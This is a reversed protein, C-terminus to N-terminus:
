NIPKVSEAVVSGGLREKVARVLPDENLASRASELREDTARAQQLAPTEVSAEVVDIQLRVARGLHRSLAQVLKEEIQRTRLQQSRADLRLRILGQDYGTWACNSALQRAAGQIDLLPVITAWNEASITPATATTVAPEVSPVPVNPASARTSPAPAGPATSAASSARMVAEGGSPRFALMRLLTMELGTRADPAYDLDRRGLVAIQYYLQLDEASIRAALSELVGRDYLEDDPGEPVAQLLAVKQVLSALEGLAQAFDPAREDLSAVERM